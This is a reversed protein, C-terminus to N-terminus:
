SDTKAEFGISNKLEKSLDEYNAIFGNHFIAIRNKYDFIPHALDERITNKFSAYRSHLIGM